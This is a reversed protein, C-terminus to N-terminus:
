SIVVSKGILEDIFSENAAFFLDAPAGNEIQRALNGTSGLVLVVKAGTAKEFRAALDKLAFTLDAAGFVTLTPPDAADTTGPNILILAALLALRLM